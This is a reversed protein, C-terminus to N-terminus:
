QSDPEDGMQAAAAVVDRIGRIRTLEGGGGALHQREADLFAVDAVVEVALAGGRHVEQGARAGLRPDDRRERGVVLADPQPERAALRGGLDPGARVAVGVEARAAPQGREHAVVAVAVHVAHARRDVAVGGRQGRVQREEGVDARQAVETVPQAELVGGLEGLQAVLRDLEQAGRVDHPDPALLDAAGAVGHLDQDLAAGARLERHLVLLDGRALLAGGGGAFPGLLHDLDGAALAHAEVDDREAVVLRERRDLLRVEQGLLRGVAELEVREREQAVRLLELGARPAEEGVESAVGQQRRAHQHGAELAVEDLGRQGRHDLADVERRVDAIGVEVVGDRDAVHRM